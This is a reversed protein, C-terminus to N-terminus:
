GQFVEMEPPYFKSLYGEKVGRNRKLFASKPIRRYVWVIPIMECKPAIFATEGCKKTFATKMGAEELLQLICSTIKHSIATNGELHNKRATNGAPIQDRSQLLVKRPSQLLGCAEKTKGEYLKKGM